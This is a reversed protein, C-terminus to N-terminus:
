PAVPPAVTFSIDQTWDVDAPQVMIPRLPPLLVWNDWDFWSPFAHPALEKVWGSYDGPPLKGLPVWWDRAWTEPPFFPDGTKYAPSWYRLGCAAKTIASSWLGTSSSIAMTHFEELPILTAGLRTDFWERTVVVGYGYPIPGTKEALGYPDGPGNWEVWDVVGPEVFSTIYATHEQPAYYASAPAALLGLLAAVCVFVLLFRKMIRIRELRQPPASAASGAAPAETDATGYAGGEGAQM